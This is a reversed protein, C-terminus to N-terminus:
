YNLYGTLIWAFIVLIALVVGILMDVPTFDRDEDM